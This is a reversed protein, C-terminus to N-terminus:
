QFEWPMVECTQGLKDGMKLRAANGVGFPFLSAPPAPTPSTEVLGCLYRMQDTDGYGVDWVTRKWTEGDREWYRLTRDDSRFLWLREDAGWDWYLPANADFGTVERYRHGGHGQVEIVWVEAEISKGAVYVGSASEIHPRSMEWTNAQDRM